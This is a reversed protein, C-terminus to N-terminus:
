KDHFKGDYGTSIRGKLRKTKRDYVRLEQYSAGPMVENTWVYINNKDKYYHPNYYEHIKKKLPNYKLKRFTRGDIVELLAIDNRTYVINNVKYFNEDVVRVKYDHSTGLRKWAQYFVWDIYAVSNNITKISWASLNFGTTVLVGDKTFLTYKNLVYWWSLVTFHHEFDWSYARVGRECPSHPYGLDCWRYISSQSMTFITETSWTSGILRGTFIVDHYPIFFTWPSVAGSSSGHDVFAFWTKNAMFFSYQPVDILYVANLYQMTAWMICLGFVFSILYKKMRLVISFLYKLCIEVM